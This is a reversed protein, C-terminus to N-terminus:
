FSLSLSLVIYWLMLSPTHAFSFVFYITPYYAQTNYFRDLAVVKACRGGGESVCMSECTM